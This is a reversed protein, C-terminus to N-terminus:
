AFKIKIVFEILIYSITNTCMNKWSTIARAVIKLFTKVSQGNRPKLAYSSSKLLPFM